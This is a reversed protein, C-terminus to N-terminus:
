VVVLRDCHAAEDIQHTSVVLTHGADRLRRFEQWFAQRLIPDIGATPEDLLVLEPDNVLACALSVRQKTGGSLQRVPDAAREALQLVDLVRAVKPRAAGRGFFEINFRGSLEEYLAPEQPMYGVRPRLSRAATTADAGLVRLTGATPRAVMAICRI